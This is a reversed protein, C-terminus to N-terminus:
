GIFDYFRNIHKESDSEPTLLIKYATNIRAMRKTSEEINDPNRDPHNEKVLSRHADRLQRQSYDKRLGFLKLAERRGLVLEGVKRM